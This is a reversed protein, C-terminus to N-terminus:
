VTNAPIYFVACDLGICNRVVTTAPIDTHTYCMSCNYSTHSPLLTRSGPRSRADCDPGLWPQVNTSCCRTTCKWPNYRSIIPV